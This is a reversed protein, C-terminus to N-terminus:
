VLVLFEIELVIERAVVISTNLESSRISELISWCISSESILVLSFVAPEGSKDSASISDTSLPSFCNRGAVVLVTLVTVGGPGSELFLKVDRNGYGVEM